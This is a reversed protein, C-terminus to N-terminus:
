YRICIIHMILKEVFLMQRPTYNRGELLASIQSKTTYFNNKLKVSFNKAGSVDGVKIMNRLVIMDNPNVCAMFNVFAKRLENLWAMDQQYKFTNIQLEKNKRNQKLSIIITVLAALAMLATAIAGIASILNTSNMLILKYMLTIM